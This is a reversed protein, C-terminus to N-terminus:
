RQWHVWFGHGHCTALREVRRVGDRWRALVLATLGPNTADSPAHPTPLGETLGPAEAYVWSLDGRRGIDDLRAVYERRRDESLYQLVVSNTVVPHGHGAVSEVVAAVDDVADGAVVEPRESRVLEIAAALNALRDRQDPWVSAELWRAQDPDRVDIPSRDLGRRAAVRPLRRPVPPDRRTGCTLRVPGPPGVETARDGSRYRYHYRDLLLNLGASAGVDVHALAGVEDAVVGMGLLLYTCRGVENTQMTRSSVIARLDGQRRECFTRFASAPDGARVGGRVGGRIPGALNPYYAALPDDREGLLLFHVAALLMVPRPQGTPTEDLIGLIAEDDAAVEALRGYLPSRPSAQRAFSRFQDALATPDAARTM